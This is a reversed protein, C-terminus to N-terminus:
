APARGSSCVRARSSSNEQICTGQQNQAYPGVGKTNGTKRHTSGSGCIDVNSDRKIGKVFQLYQWVCLHSPEQPFFHFLEQTWCRKKSRIRPTRDKWPKSAPVQGKGTRARTDKRRLWKQKAGCEALSLWEIRGKELHNPWNSMPQAILIHWCLHLLSM